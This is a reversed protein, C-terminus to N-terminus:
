KRTAGCACEYHDVVKEDYAAKDVVWVNQTEYEAEHHITDVVVKESHYGGHKEDWQHDDLAELAAVDTKYETPSFKMGCTNCVYVWETVEEDWADKVCVTKEEYHGEEKHHVVTYVPKYDHKHTVKVKCSVRSNKYTATITANGAKKATIKGNKNVTAVNVNSSKFAAKVRKKNYTAKLTYTKGAAIKLSTKNLKTEAVTIKVKKSTEGKYTATVTVTGAKKATLKGSKSVTAVKKNSTKWTAKKTVNKSGCVAKLQTNTSKSIVKQSVKVVPKASAASAEIPPCIITFIMVISLILTLIKYNAFFGDRVDAKNRCNKCFM